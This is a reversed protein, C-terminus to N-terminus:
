MTDYEHQIFDNVSSVFEEYNNQEVKNFADLMRTLYMRCCIDYGDDLEITADARYTNQEIADRLWEFDITLGGNGNPINVMTQFVERQIVPLMAPILHNLQEWCEDILAINQSQEDPYEIDYDIQPLYDPEADEPRMIKYNFRCMPCKASANRMFCSFCVVHKGGCPIVVFSDKLEPEIDITTAYCVCCESNIM